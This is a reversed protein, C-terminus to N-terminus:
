MSSAGIPLPSAVECETPLQMEDVVFQLLYDLVSSRHHVPTNECKVSQGNLERFPSVTQQHVLCYTPTPGSLFFKWLATKKEYVGTNTDGTLMTICLDFTVEDLRSRLARCIKSYYEKDVSVTCPMCYGDYGGDMWFPGECKKCIVAFVMVM